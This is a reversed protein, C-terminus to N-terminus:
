SKCLKLIEELFPKLRDRIDKRDMAFEINAMQFGAKDGCDFRKGEFNYGMIQKEKLLMAMADTLQIEGGAGFTKKGLFDFIEPELIYRGIIAMNSPADQPDPKEVLGKIRSVREGIKESDIIGYKDTEKPSVEM